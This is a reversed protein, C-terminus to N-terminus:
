RVRPGVTGAYASPSGFPNSARFALARCPFSCKCVKVFQNPSLDTSAAGHSIGTLPYSKGPRSNAESLAWPCM